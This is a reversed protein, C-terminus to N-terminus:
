FFSKHHTLRINRGFHLKFCHISPTQRCVNKIFILGGVSCFSGCLWSILIQNAIKEFFVWMVLIIEMSHLIFM